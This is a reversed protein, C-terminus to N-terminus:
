WKQKKNWGPEFSSPKDRLWITSKEMDNSGCVNQWLYDFESECAKSCLWKIVWLDYVNCSNLYNHKNM